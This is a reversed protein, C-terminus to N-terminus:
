RVAIFQGLGQHAGYGVAIPGLQPEAFTIQFGHGPQGAGSGGGKFRRRRFRNWATWRQTGDATLASIALPRPFGLRELLRVLQDPPADVVAGGRLKTHRPPVFATHSQWVRAPGLLAIRGSSSQAQVGGHDRFQSEAVAATRTPRIAYAGHGWVRTLRDIAALAEEDFGERAYISVHDIRGDGDEDTPLFFAHENGTRVEGAERGLFTPHGDAKHLLAARFLDGVALAETLMPLVESRLELRVLNPREAVRRLHPRRAAVRPDHRYPVRRTGPPRSWGDRRLHGIDTHLVDWWGEPPERRERRPLGAQGDLFGTRWRAYDADPELALLALNSREPECPWCNANDPLHELRRADVWSEARGLYTVQALIRDLIALDTAPLEAEPWIALLEGDAPAVFADLVKTTTVPAPMYHRSHGEGIPPVAYGPPARLPSLVRRVDAPTLEEGLKYSASVLARLLRLPSPPWEVGGENVHQDWPTAHYRGAPFTFAVAIM